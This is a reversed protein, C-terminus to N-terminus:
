PKVQEESLTTHTQRISTSMFHFRFTLNSCLYIEYLEREFKKSKIKTQKNTKPIIYQPNFSMKKHHVNM